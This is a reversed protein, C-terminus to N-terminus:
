FSNQRQHKKAPIDHCAQRKSVVTQEETIKTTQAGPCLIIASKLYLM